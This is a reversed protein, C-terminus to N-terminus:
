KIEFRDNPIVVTYYGQYRIYWTIEGEFTIPRDFSIAKNCLRFNPTYTM